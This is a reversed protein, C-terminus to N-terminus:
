AFLSWLYVLVGAGVLVAGVMLFALFAAPHPWQLTFTEVILGLVLLLSALRLRRVGSRSLPKM